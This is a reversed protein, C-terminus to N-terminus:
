VPLSPPVTHFLKADGVHRLEVHRVVQFRGLVDGVVQCGHQRVVVGGLKLLGQAGDSASASLSASSSAGVSM